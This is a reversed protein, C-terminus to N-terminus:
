STSGAAVPAEAGDVAVEYVTRQVPGAWFPRLPVTMERHIPADEWALFKEMSEWTGLLVYRDEESTDRLLRDAVHGETGKVTARVGAFAQEFQPGTGPKIKAAVTVFVTM